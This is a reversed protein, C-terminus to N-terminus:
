ADELIWALMATTTTKGVGGAVVANRSRHLFFRRLLEPFSCYELGRDIARRLEPNDERVRKGVVVLDANPPINDPHYPMRVGLGHERLLDSMPPYADEDSGTVAWGARSLAIAIAGMGKGCAGVFHLRGPGM